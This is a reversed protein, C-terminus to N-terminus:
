VGVGQPLSQVLCCMELYLLHGLIDREQEEEEERNGREGKRFLHIRVIIYGLSKRDKVHLM